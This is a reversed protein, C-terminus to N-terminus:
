AAGGRAWAIQTGIRAVPTPCSRPPPCVCAAEKVILWTTPVVADNVPGITKAEAGPREGRLDRAGEIALPAKRAVEVLMAPVPKSRPTM